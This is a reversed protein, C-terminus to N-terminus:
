SLASISVNYEASFYTTALQLPHLLEKLASFIEWQESKTGTLPKTVPNDSLVATIPWHEVLREITFHAIGVPVSM